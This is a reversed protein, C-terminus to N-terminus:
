APAQVNLSITFIYDNTRTAVSSIAVDSCATVLSTSHTTTTLAGAEADLIEWVDPERV